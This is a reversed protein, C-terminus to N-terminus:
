GAFIAFHEAKAGTVFGRLGGSFEQFKAAQTAAKHLEITDWTVAFFVKSPDEVGRGFIFARCGASEDIVARREAVYQLLEDERGAIVNLEVKEVVMDM